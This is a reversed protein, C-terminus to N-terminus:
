KRSAIWRDLKAELASFPLMGDELLVQHFARVDFKPGLAAEARKRMEEWQIGGLPYALVFGPLSSILAVSQVARQPPRLPMAEQLYTIAQEPTWGKVQMGLDAVMMPAISSMERGIYDRDSDYLGIEYAFDEAYTAWGEGPGSFFLLRAVPHNGKRGHEALFQVQLHHGPLTEHLIVNQLSTRYLDATVNRYYYTAPRSGDDAAPLYQGGPASAQQFEPFPELVVKGAPPTLVMKGAAAEAREYTRQTFDRIADASAFKEQPDAKILDALATGDTAKEGFLKRGLDLATKREREVQKRAVDFLAEPDADVTTTAFVQARYCNRGDPMSELSPSKRAHPLYEDRLYDRYRTVAPWVTGEIVAKWDAAFKPTKDRTAPDMLGAQEPTQALMQDLQGLTSQTASETALYGLRQGEKLNAIERDVWPGVDRWRSLAQMRAEDTGVPQISAVQSLGAQWGLASVGWLENRCIATSLNQRVAQDLYEWTVWEPESAFADPKITALEGAMEKMLARWRAIEEPSNIDLGDSRKLPLGSFAYSVPFNKEFEAVFRDALSTVRARDDSAALSPLAAGAILVLAFVRLVKM